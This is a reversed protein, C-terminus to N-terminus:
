DSPITRWCNPVARRPSSPRNNPPSVVSRPAVRGAIAWTISEYICTSDSSQRAVGVSARFGVQCDITHSSEINLVHEEARFGRNAIGDFDRSPVLRHWTKM